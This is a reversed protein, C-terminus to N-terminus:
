AMNAIKVIEADAWLHEIDYFMRPEQQFIHVIAQLYDMAVWQANDTGDIAVPKTETKKHVYDKVSRTIASIHTTSDGECIVFFSCAANEFKTLDVVVINKGKKEQIGEVISNVLQKSDM